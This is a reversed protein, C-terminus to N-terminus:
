AAKGPRRRASRLALVLTVMLSLAWGSQSSKAGLAMSCTHGPGKGGSGNASGSSGSGNVSGGGSSGEMGGDAPGADVSADSSTGADVPEGELDPPAVRQPDVRFLSRGLMVYWDGAWIANGQTSSIETPQAAGNTLYRRKDSRMLVQGAPSIDSPFTDAVLTSVKTQMGDPARRFVQRRITAGQKSLKSFVSWGGRLVYGGCPSGEFGTCLTESGMSSILNTAAADKTQYAINEGDTVLGLPEPSASCCSLSAVASARYRYLQYSADMWVLDGSEALAYAYVDVDATLPDPATHMVEAGSELDILALEFGKFTTSNPPRKVVLWKGRVEYEVAGAFRTTVADNRRVVEGVKGEEKIFFVAGGPALSARQVSGAAGAYISASQYIGAGDKSAIFVNAQDESVILARTGDTDRVLGDASTLEPALKPSAEVYFTREITTIQGASDAASITIQVSEGDPDTFTVVKDIEKSGTLDFHSVTLNSCGAEEDDDSCKVILHLKPTAVDTAGLTIVPPRDLTFTVSDMGQANYVDTATVTVTQEGHTVGTLALKGAYTGSDGESLEVSHNGVVARVSQIDYKSSVSVTLSLEEGSVTAAEPSTITVGIDAAQAQSALWPFTLTALLCARVILRSM